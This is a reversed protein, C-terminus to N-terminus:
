VQLAGLGGWHETVMESNRESKHIIKSIREQGFRLERNNGEELNITHYSATGTSQQLLNTSNTGSIYGAQEAPKRM